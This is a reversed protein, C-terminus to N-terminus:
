SARSVRDRRVYTRTLAQRSSRHRIALRGLVVLCVKLLVITLVIYFAWDTWRSRALVAGGLGVHM